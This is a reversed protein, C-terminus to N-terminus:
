SYKGPRHEELIKFLTGIHTRIAAAVPPPLRRMNDILIREDKTLQSVYDPTHDSVKWESFDDLLWDPKEGFYAAVSAINDRRIKGTRMWKSVAQPTVHCHAALGQKTLDPHREFAKRLRERIIATRNAAPRKTDEVM